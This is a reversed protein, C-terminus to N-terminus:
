RNVLGGMQGYCIRKRELKGSSISLDKDFMPSINITSFHYVFGIAYSHLSLTFTVIM